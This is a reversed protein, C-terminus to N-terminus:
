GGLHLTYRGGDSMECTGTGRTPAGLEYQCRLYTGRSGAANAVGRRSATQTRTAEGSLLEGRYVLQFEGRGNLHNTVTGALLGGQAAIDNTPYLRATTVAQAPAQPPAAVGPSGPLVAPNPPIPQVVHPRGDIPVIMCGSFAVAAFAGITFHRSLNM